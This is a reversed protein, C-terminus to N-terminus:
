TTKPSFATVKARVTFDYTALARLPVRAVLTSFDPLTSVELRLSVAHAAGKADHQVNRSVPVCRTWFVISRDRPDGSAVGQPFRHLNERVPSAPLAAPSVDHAAAVTAAAITFFASSKLFHRRDM